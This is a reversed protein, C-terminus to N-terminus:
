IINGLLEMECHSLFTRGQGVGGPLGPTLGCEWLDIRAQTGAEVSNAIAERGKVEQLKKM